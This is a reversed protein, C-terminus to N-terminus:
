KLSQLEWKQTQPWTDVFLLIFLQHCICSLLCRYSILGSNEKNAKSNLAPDFVNCIFHNLSHLLTGILSFKSVDIYLILYKILFLCKPGQLTVQFPLNYLLLTFLDQKICLPHDFDNSHSLLDSLLSMSFKSFLKALM